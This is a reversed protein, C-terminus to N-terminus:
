DSRPKEHSTIRTNLQAGAILIPDWLPAYPPTYILDLQALADVTMQQQIAASLTNARLVAGDAGFVNAGLIRKSRKDAILVINVKESKPFFSVRSSSVIHEREPEFGHEAAEESGLGVRAVELSFVKVAIARLAGKFAASGGAANEGAVRGQRAAITALPCFMMKNSVLNRVECCDGAGYINDMSTVQRQDTLIGNWRGIRLGAARALDNNPEVGICVVVVDADITNDRTKVGTVTGDGRQVFGQVQCDPVLRVKRSELEAAVAKRTEPELGAMPLSKNHLVSTDIGRATLAEAMEMGIYGGGIIAAKAPREKDLFHHLAKSESFSKISFVNRADAGRLHLRKPRSGTALILRDYPFREVGGTNLNRVLLFRRLADIEEVHHLIRADIGKEKRLREPTYPLLNGEDKVTGGLFYPIECIGYSVYEGAEFLIVGAQPNTRRAKAAAAPGAALGGVVLIRPNM